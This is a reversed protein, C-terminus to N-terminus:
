PMTSLYGDVFRRGVVLHSALPYHIRDANMALDDVDIMVFGPQMALWEQQARLTTAGPASFDDNIRAFVVVLGPFRPLLADRFAVMRTGWKEASTVTAADAEGQWWALFYVRAGRAGEAAAMRSSLQTFLNDTASPYSSSPGWHEMSTSSVAVKLLSWRDPQHEELRRGMDIEPGVMRTGDFTTRAGLGAWDHWAMRPTTGLQAALLMHTPYVVNNLATTGVTTGLANSQGGLVVIGAEVVGPADPTAVPAASDHPSCADVVSELAPNSTDVYTTCAVLTALFLFFLKNM